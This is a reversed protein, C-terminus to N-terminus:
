ARGFLGNPRVLLLLFVAVYIFFAGFEPVLIKCASDGLGLLLAAFFPGKVSGLGGVAVVILFYVLYVLPYSPTLAMVGAGLAGGLAALASGIGFVVTFLRGTDIGIAAAMAPNEVAARIRAGVDTREIGFWLLLFVVCGVAILFLRYTPFSRWGLDAQGNLFAPLAVSRALPGYAFQAVAVAVFILGITLLVQDLEGAKYIRSYLLRELVVSLLGVLISGAVLSWFFGYGAQDVLTYVIYGGAMAFAGHALNVIGLLGMTISLGVSVIYLVM